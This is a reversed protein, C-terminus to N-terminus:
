GGSPTHPSFISFQFGLIMKGAQGGETEQRERGDRPDLSTFKQRKNGGCNIKICSPYVNM